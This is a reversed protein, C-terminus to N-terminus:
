ETKINRILTRWQAADLSLEPGSPDKSDRIHVSAGLEAVEVCAGGSGGSQSSKRWVAASRNKQHTM